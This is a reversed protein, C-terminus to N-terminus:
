IRPISFHLIYIYYHIHNLSIQRLVLYLQQWIRFQVEVDPHSCGTPPYTGGKPDTVPGKGCGIPM